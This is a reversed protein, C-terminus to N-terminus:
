RNAHSQLFTTVLYSLAKGVQGQNEESPAAECIHLYKCNQQQSTKHVLQRITEFDFGSPTQASSPFNAIADCDLELGFWTNNVFDLSTDYAQFIDNQIDEYFQVQIRSKHADIYDFIYSPTYNKHLGFISYYSLYIYEEGEFAYTFGNGSHRYDAKRLDTHADINIVNIPKKYALALGKLNGFANNHGGGIIIPIKGADIIARILSSVKEDIESVISGLVEQPMEPHDDSVYEVEIHGLLLISAGINFYNDQVNVFAKLFASWANRTGPKGQNAIVGIDEAIGLVIYQAKTTHIDKISTCHQITQGLKLEGERRSVLSETDLPTQIHLKVESM